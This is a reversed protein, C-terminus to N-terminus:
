PAANLADQLHGGGVMKEHPVPKGKQGVAIIQYHQRLESVIDPSLGTSSVLGDFTAKLEDRLTNNLGPYDTVRRSPPASDDGHHYSRFRLMSALLKKREVDNPAAKLATVDSPIQKEFLWKELAALEKPGNIADFLAVEGLKAPAASSGLMGGQSMVAGGGSHAALVTQGITPATPWVGLATLRAFVEGVYADANFTGAGFEALASGQPLVGIMPRGSAQLQQEIQDTTVDQSAAGKSFDAGRGHFYVLVEVSKPATTKSIGLSTPVIAIARGSGTTGKKGPQHGLTLGDVPIRRMGGIQVENRLAGRDFSERVIALTDKVKQASTAVAGGALTDVVAELQTISATRTADDLPPKQRALVLLRGGAAEGVSRAVEASVVDGREIASRTAQLAAEFTGQLTDRKAARLNPLWDAPNGLLKTKAASSGKRTAAAAPGAAVLVTPTDTGVDWTWVGDAGDGLRPGSLTGLEVRRGPAERLPDKGTGRPNKTKTAARIEKAEAEGIPQNGQTAKIDTIAGDTRTISVITQSHGGTRVFGGSKTRKRHEWVLIDGPHLMNQLTVFSRIQKGGKDSYSNALTQVNGSFVDKIVQNLTKQRQGVTAGAGVGLVWPGFRETRKHTFLWVHRLIVVIDACDTPLRYATERLEDPLNERVWKDTPHDIFHDAFKQDSSQFLPDSQREEAPATPDHSAPGDGLVKHGTGFSDPTSDQASFTSLSSFSALWEEYTTTDEPRKVLAPKPPDPARQIVM